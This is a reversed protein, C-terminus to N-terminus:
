IGATNKPRYGWFEKTVLWVIAQFDRTEIGVIAAAKVFAAEIADRRKGSLWMARVKFNNIAGRIAWVDVTARARKEATDGDINLAFPVVKPGSVATKDGLFRRYAKIKNEYTGPGPANEWSGGAKFHRVLPLTWAEQTEWFTRPSMIAVIDIVTEVDVGTQEAVWTCFKRAGPYWGFGAIMQADNARAFWGLLNDVLENTIKDYDIRRGM